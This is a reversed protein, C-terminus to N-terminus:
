KTLWNELYKDQRLIQIGLIQKLQSLISELNNLNKRVQNNSFRNGRYDVYLHWPHISFIFLGGKAVDRAQLVADIYESSIRRGEFIAWLYSAMKKGKADHFSPLALELLSSDFAELPYPNGTWETGLTVTESSDYQFGLRELVKVVTRNIRTYPARFGKIERGFIKVLIETAKDISEEISKEEM